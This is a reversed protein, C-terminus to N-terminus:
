AAGRLGRFGGKGLKEKLESESCPAKVLREVIKQREAIERGFVLQYENCFSAKFNRDNPDAIGM